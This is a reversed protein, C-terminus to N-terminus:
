FDHQVGIRGGHRRADAPAPASTAPRREFRSQRTSGLEGTIAWRPALPWRGLLVLTTSRSTVLGGPLSEVEQGRAVILGLRGVEGFYRDLQLRMGTAAGGGVDSRTLAVAGRWDAVYRELGLRWSRVETPVSGDGRYRTQGAGLGLVWGAGLERGLELSVGRQPLFRHEPSAQVRAGVAWGEGLSWALGAALDSDALGYREARRLQLEVSRRPALTARLGLDQQRWAGGAAGQEAGIGAEVQWSQAAACGAILALLAPLVGQRRLKM